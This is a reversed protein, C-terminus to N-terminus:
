IDKLNSIYEALAGEKLSYTSLRMKNLQFSNLVFDVMLCSVVIMDFRIAILGKIKKREDLTSQIVKTSISTHQNFDIAYETKNATIAEGGLEGHIMEVISDFAGSAGVLESPQYKAVAEFLSHFEKQLHQNIHAIDEERIPDAQKYLELLRATGVKYSQKWLLENKNAIIFETSGGGIDMILTNSDQMKVAERVGKYILEAERDGQIVEVSIGTREKVAEVFDNGNKAERIASTAFAQVEEVDFQGLYENYSDLAALGRNFPAEAIFGQNIASEGLKVSLRTNFLKKIKKDDQLEIIILNFTNTGCDIVAIRKMIGNLFRNEPLVIENVWHAQVNSLYLYKEM